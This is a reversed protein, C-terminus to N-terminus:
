AEVGRIWDSRDLVCFPRVMRPIAYEDEAREVWLMRDKPYEAQPVGYARVKCRRRQGFMTVVAYCLSAPSCEDQTESMLNGKM